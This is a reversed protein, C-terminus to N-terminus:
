AVVLSLYYFIFSFDIYVSFHHLSKVSQQTLDTGVPQTGHHHRQQHPAASKKKSGAFCTVNQTFCPTSTAYYRYKVAILSNVSVPILVYICVCACEYM